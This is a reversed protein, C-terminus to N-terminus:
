LTKLAGKDWSDREGTSDQKKKKKKKFKLQNKSHYFLIVTFIKFNLNLIRFKYNQPKLLIEMTADGESNDM